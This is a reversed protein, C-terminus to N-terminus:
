HGSIILKHLSLLLIHLLIQKIDREVPRSLIIKEVSMHNISGSKM